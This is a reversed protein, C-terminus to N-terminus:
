EDNTRPNIVAGRCSCDFAPKSSQQQYLLLFRAERENREEVSQRAEPKGVAEVCDQRESDHRTAEAATLHPRRVADGFYQESWVWYESVYPHLLIVGRNPM